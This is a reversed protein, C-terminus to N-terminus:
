RIGNRGATRFSGINYLVINEIDANPLKPGFFSAELVQDGSPALLDCRSRIEDRLRVQWEPLGGFRIYDDAWVEVVSRGSSPGNVVSRREPASATM